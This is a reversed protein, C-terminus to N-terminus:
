SATRYVVLTKSTARIGRTTGPKGKDNTPPQQRVLALAHRGAEARSVGPTTSIRLNPVVYGNVSTLRGSRDLNALLKAGFVPVGRYRQTFAVTRGYRDSVVGAQRLEGSRAGFAGAYTRVYATAKAAAAARSAGDRGPMLDDSSRVFGVAGTARQRSIQIQGSAESRMRDVITPKTM